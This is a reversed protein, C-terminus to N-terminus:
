DGEAEKYGDILEDPVELELFWGTWGWFVEFELKGKGVMDVLKHVLEWGGVDLISEDYENAMESIINILNLTFRM